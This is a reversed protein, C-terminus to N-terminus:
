SESLGKPHELRLLRMLNGGLIADLEQGDFVGVVKRKEHAPIGFPYDSGFLLRDTGYSRAFDEIEARGALATDAWVNSAEFVGAEKLQTYGGNLAGLHPIIVVTKGEITRIFALTNRFEEELVIPLRRHCIDEIIRGCEPVSYRYFPEDPHRHWKIGRFGNPIPSFDNWVFYYPILGSDAALDALYQHVRNRSQAYEASDVFRPDYRNYIEEVPSFLVGGNIGAARWQQSVNEYPLTLGCHVHADLILNPM